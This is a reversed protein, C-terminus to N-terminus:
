YVVMRATSFNDGTSLSVIYMGPTGVASRPIFETNTANPTANRTGEYVVRGAMDRITFKMSGDNGAHYMITAGNASPNPYVIISKGNGNAVVDQVDTGFPSIGVNDIYVNNGGNGALMRFRFYTQRNRHSTPISVTRGVWTSSSGPVFETSSVGNNALDTTRFSALRTWVAGGSSSVDVQMSDFVKSTGFGGPNTSAGASYFNFYLNGTIGALDFAPTIFDDLDGTATGTRRNSTDFSRFRVCSNDDKGAGNYFQWRFQNEYHNFMPWNAIDTASVFNQTYGATGVPTTDAAYVAQKNVITNSGANSTATLSVTVWGPVSFTSNVTTLSTSTPTSAGNSFNWTVGSLTDNWSMNRFSFNIPSNFALFRTRADSTSGGVGKNVCFEAVPPLDPMPNLAGTVALNGASWLNSRGATPSTLATRMRFCQGKTFMAACYTYDMINQANVTDPYNVVSDMMGSSSTYTKAYGTACATDYIASAICGPTHGKTPPTDDVQDNGCAVAPNNTNGWVHQLNLCHGIEHPITNSRDIYDYLSIVGDYHPMAAASSPYYAYAAAGSNGITRTFWINMYKNNPWPAFKSQDSGKYTLYSYHRVVGKTPNGYPDKTALHLRTRANGVWPVFTPIVSSLEPNNKVYALAWLKVAEYITNDPIFEFNFGYDHVIHVVLPVDYWTTDEAAATGKAAFGATLQSNFQEELEALQPYEKLLQQYHDDTGCPQTQAFTTGVSCAAALVFLSLKKFM